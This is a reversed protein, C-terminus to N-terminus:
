HASHLRVLMAPDRHESALKEHAHELDAILRNVAFMFEDRSDYPCDTLLARARATLVDHRRARAWRQVELCGLRALRGVDGVRRAHWVGALVDELELLASKSDMGDDM